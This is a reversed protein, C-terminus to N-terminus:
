NSRASQPHRAELDAWVGDKLADRQAQLRRALRDKAITAALARRVLDSLTEGQEEAHLRIDALLAPSIRLPPLIAVYVRPRSM